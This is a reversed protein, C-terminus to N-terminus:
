GLPNSAEPRWPCRCECACIRIHSRCTHVLVCVCVCVGRSRNLWVCPGSRAYGLSPHTLGRSGCWLGDVVNCQPHLHTKKKGKRKKKVLNLNLFGRLPTKEWGEASHSHSDSWPLSHLSIGSPPNCQKGSLRCRCPGGAYAGGGAKLESPILEGRDVPIVLFSVQDPLTRQDPLWGERGSCGRLLGQWRHFWFKTDTDQVDVHPSM